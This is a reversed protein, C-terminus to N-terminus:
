QSWGILIQCAKHQTPLRSWFLEEIEGCTERCNSLWGSCRFDMTDIPGQIKEIIRRCSIGSSLNYRCWNKIPAKIYAIELPVSHSSAGAKNVWLTWKGTRLASGWRSFMIMNMNRIGVLSWFWSWLLTSDGSAMYIWMSKVHWCTKFVRTVSQFLGCIWTKCNINHLLVKISWSPM